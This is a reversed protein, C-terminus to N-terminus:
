RDRSSESESGSYSDSEGSSYESYESYESEDNIYEKMEQVVPDDLLEVYSSDPDNQVNEIWKGVAKDDVVGIDWLIQLFPGFFPIFENNESSFLAVDDIISQMSLGESDILYNKILLSQRRIIEKVQM